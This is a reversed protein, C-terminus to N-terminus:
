LTRWYSPLSTTYQISAQEANSGFVQAHEKTHVTSRSSWTYSLADACVRSALGPMAGHLQRTEFSTADRAISWAFRSSQMWETDSHTWQMVKVDRLHWHSYSGLPHHEVVDGYYLHGLFTVELSSMQWCSVVRLANAPNQDNCLRCYLWDVIDGILLRVCHTSLLYDACVNTTRPITFFCLHEGLFM